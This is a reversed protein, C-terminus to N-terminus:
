EGEKFIIGDNENLTKKRYLEIVLLVYALILPGIILGLVGFVFLGGVMGLIIIASNMRARRSVILPRLINDILSVVVVGYILLGLGAGSNGTAFLYIDVPVWIIWAGIFPIISFIITLIILLLKNSVGFIFYGIGATLGQIIGVIIQGIVVSYTIDKFQKFFKEQDEKKLPLLSRLYDMAIYGDKLSFFFVIVVVFVQLIFIPMELLFNSFEAIFGSLSNSLFTNASSTIITSLESSFFNPVMNRALTTLDLKQLGLYLSMTQPVLYSLILAFIILIFILLGFGVLSASLTKNKVRKLILEYLPYFISALLVGLFISIIIPRLLIGALIFLILVLAGAVIDKFVKNEVV